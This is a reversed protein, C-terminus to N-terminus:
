ASFIVCGTWLAYDYTLTARGGRWHRKAHGSGRALVGAGIAIQPSTLKDVTYLDIMELYIGQQDDNIEIAKTDKNFIYGFPPRGPLYAGNRTAARKGSKTRSSIKKREFDALLSLLNITFEGLDSETDIPQTVSILGIGLDKLAKFTNLFHRINRSLRDIALVVVIDFRGEQADALMQQFRPREM